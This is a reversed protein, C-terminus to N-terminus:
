IPTGRNLSVVMCVIFAMMLIGFEFWGVSMAGIKSTGLLSYHFINEMYDRYSITRYLGM